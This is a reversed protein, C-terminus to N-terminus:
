LIGSEGCLGLNEKGKREMAKLGGPCGSWVLVLVMLDNMCVWRVVVLPAWGGKPPGEGVAKHAV